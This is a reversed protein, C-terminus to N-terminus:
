KEENLFKSCKHDRHIKFPKGKFYQSFKELTYIIALLERKTVGYRREHKKLLRSIYWLIEKEIEDQRLYGAVGISPADDTVIYFHKAFDPQAM